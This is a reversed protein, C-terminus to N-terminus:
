TIMISDKISEIIKRAKNTLDKNFLPSVNATKWDRPLCGLDFSKQLIATIPKTFWDKLEKIFRPYIEDPGCDKNIDLQM